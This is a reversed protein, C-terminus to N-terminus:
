HPKDLIIKSLKSKLQELSSNKGQLKFMENPDKLSLFEGRFKSLYEDDIIKIVSELTKKDLSLIFNIYDKNEKEIENM